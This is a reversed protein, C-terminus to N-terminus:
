SNLQKFERSFSKKFDLFTGKEISERSKRILDILFQLNHWTLLRLAVIEDLLYLHRIYARSYNQCAYCSCKSDLPLFDSAYQSNRINLKGISTFVTGGRAMRTPIASDFMDIGFAIGELIGIPDGVGMLYRPKDQPLLPTAFGLVHYTQEKPEGVSLGGLAYGDFGIELTKEVSLKRLNEETGGQVIGFLAQNEKQHIKKCRKAWKYTRIVAREKEQYQASFPLCEDLIMAIDSGIKEQIKIVREPSFFRLSGDIISRFEVGEDKVKFTKSLSFIQYGGSDTLIPKEWNMFKHIGGAKKILEEGPQLHLHYTNTLIMEIGIERLEEPIKTKVAGKTGVPMFLPTNVVGHTTTMRGIRAQSKKDKAILEFKFM